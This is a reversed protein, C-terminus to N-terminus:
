PMVGDGGQRRGMTCGPTKSEEPLGCGCAVMKVGSVHKLSSAQVQWQNVLTGVESLCQMGAAGWLLQM